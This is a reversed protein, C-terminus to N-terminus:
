GSSREMAIVHGETMSQFAGQIPDWYRGEIDLGLHDFVTASLDAPSVPNDRVQGAQHDTSGYIQGGVIGGGAALVTFAHPWHDRSSKETMANQTFQGIRPTRGFEGTAVVMTTSLMDRDGLDEILASMARDFVPLMRDRLVPFIHNHQDWHPSVKDNFSTDHWNVVILPVGTEVLRRAALLSRGFVTDGYRHRHAATEEELKVARSLRGDRLLSVATEQFGEYRQIHRGSVGGQGSQELSMLLSRRAALRESDSSAPLTLEDADFTGSDLSASLVFPDFQPGMRGGTQGAIRLPQGFFQSHWPTVIAPPLGQPATGFRTVLSAFSPWDEPRAQDTTPPLPYPRGSYIESCAPGHVPMRHQMSRILCTRHMQTALLPLHECIQIEAASTQIPRFEGRIELPAAPKMDWLDIQSPGGFLFVFIVSGRERSTDASKPEQFASASANESLSVGATLSFVGPLGIPVCSLLHRRSLSRNGFGFHSFMGHEGNAPVAMQRWSPLSQCNAQMDWSLLTDDTHVEHLVEALSTQLM